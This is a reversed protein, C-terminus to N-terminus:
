GKGNNTKYVFLKEEVSDVKYEYNNLQKYLKKLIEEYEKKSMSRCLRISSEKVIKKYLSNSFCNLFDEECNIYKM